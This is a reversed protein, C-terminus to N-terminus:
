IINRLRFSTKFEEEGRRIKLRIKKGDRKRLKNNLTILTYHRAGLGNVKLIIDGPQIGAKAAPSNKRVDVVRFTNLDVGKAAIVLGTKSYIFPDHYNKNKNLYLAQNKYDFIVTFRRLFEGGITGDREVNKLMAYSLGEPYSTLVQEFSYKDGFQFYPIRGINGYIDGALGRGLNGYITKAPLVFDECSDKEHLLLAHSAGTDLMLKAVKKKQGLIDIMSCNIYPKTDEISLPYYEYSRSPKFNGNEYLTIINAYYDIKVVFSRFIEYGLIGEVKMGLQSSLELYDEELVLMSQRRAVVGPLSFSVNRAIHAEVTIQSGAGQFSIKRDYNIALFDSYFRETLIATRVGTDLIFNLSIVSDLMIPVVILNKVLTFPIEAVKQRNTIEYGEEQQAQLPSFYTSLSLLITLIAFTFRQRFFFSTLFSFKACVAYRCRSKMLILLSHRNSYM